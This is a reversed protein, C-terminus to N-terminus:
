CRGCAGFEESMGWHFRWTVSSLFFALVCVIPMLRGPQWPPGPFVLGAPIKSSTESDM